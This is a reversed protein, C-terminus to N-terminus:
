RAAEETVHSASSSGGFFLDAESRKEVLAIHRLMEGQAAASASTEVATLIGQHGLLSQKSDGRRHETFQRGRRLRARLARAMLRIFPNHTQYFIVHHFHLDAELM